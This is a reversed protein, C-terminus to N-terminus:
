RTDGIDCSPYMGSSSTTGSASSLRPTVDRSGEKGYPLPALGRLPPPGDSAAERWITSLAGHAKLEKMSTLWLRPGLGVHALTRRHSRLWREDFGVVLTVVGDLGYIGRGR